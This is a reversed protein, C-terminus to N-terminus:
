ALTITECQDTDAITAGFIAWVAQIRNLTLADQEQNYVTPGMADAKQIKQKPLVLIPTGSVISANYTYIRTIRRSTIQEGRNAIAILANTTARFAAEIREEDNPNAYLILPANAMDGFGKNLNRNTLNFAARNITRVDQRTQGDAVIGQAVTVNLAAAAALLAYHINGKNVWFQNRFTEAMDVMAAVKRFRIWADTWGIAGGYYRVIGTVFDGEYGAVDLRQGEMMQIFTLSNAVNYIEWSDQGKAVVAQKFAQEWGLDFNDSEITVNFSDRTLVQFDGSTTVGVQAQVKKQMAQIKKQVLKPEQLYAQLAMKIKREKSYDYPRGEEQALYNSQIGEFLANDLKVLSKM